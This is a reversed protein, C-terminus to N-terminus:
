STRSNLCPTARPLAEASCVATRAAQSRCPMQRDRSLSIRLEEVATESESLQVVKAFKPTVEPLRQQELKEGKRTTDTAKREARQVASELRRTNSRVTPPLDEFGEAGFTKINSKLGKAVLVLKALREKTKAFSAQTMKLLSQSEKGQEKVEKTFKKM